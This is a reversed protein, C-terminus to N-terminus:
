DLRPGVLDLVNAVTECKALQEPELVLELHADFDVITKLIGMSDWSELDELSTEEHLSGREEELSDELLALAERRDM